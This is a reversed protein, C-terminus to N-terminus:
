RMWRARECIDALGADLLAEAIDGFAEDEAPDDLYRVREPHGPMDELRTPCYRRRRRLRALAWLVAAAILTALPIAIWTAWAIAGSEYMLDRLM